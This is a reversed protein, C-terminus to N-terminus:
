SASPEEIWLWKLEEPFVKILKNVEGPDIHDRIVSFVARVSPELAKGLPRHTDIEVDALFEDVHRSRTPTQAMKWGEYYIGRILMPLQAGFHVANEPSIRDRVTHLTGRLLQYALHADNTGIRDMIDNLWLHTQQVTTDFVSIAATM